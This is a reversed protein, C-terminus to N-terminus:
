FSRGLQTLDTVQGNVTAEQYQTAGTASFDDEAILVGFIRDIEPEIIEDLSHDARERSDIAILERVQDLDAETLGIVIVERPDAGNIVTLMKNKTGFGTEHYWAKRFDEYTKGEKLRRRVIAVHIMM